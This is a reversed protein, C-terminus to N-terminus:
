KILLRRSALLQHLSKLSQLYNVKSVYFIPTFDPTQTCINAQTVEQIAKFLKKWDPVGCAETQDHRIWVIPTLVKVFWSQCKLRRSSRRRLQGDKWQRLQNRWPLLHLGLSRNPRLSLNIGRTQSNWSNYTSRWIRFKCATECLKLHSIWRSCKRKLHFFSIIIKLAKAVSVVRFAARLKMYSLHEM